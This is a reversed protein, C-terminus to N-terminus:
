LASQNNAEEFVVGLRNDKRWIVRCHRRVQDTDMLLNFEHPIALAYPVDLAAGDASLNRITCSFAGRDFEITGSKLVRRRNVRRAETM